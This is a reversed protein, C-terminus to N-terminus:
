RADVGPQRAPGGQVRLDITAQARIGIRGLMEDIGAVHQFVCPAAEKRSWRPIYQFRNLAFPLREHLTQFEARRGGAAVTASAICGPSNPPTVEPWGEAPRYALATASCFGQPSLSAAM